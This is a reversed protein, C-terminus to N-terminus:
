PTRARRFQTAAIIAFAVGLSIYANHRPVRFGLFAFVIAVFLFVTGLLTRRNM